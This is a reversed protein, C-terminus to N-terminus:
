HKVCDVLTKLEIVADGIPKDWNDKKSQRFLRMVEPYWPSDPRDLLWRWDTGFAPLLVWCPKGMAGAIHAVATDVCIVLDLQAMIAATDAFDRIDSGLNILPQEAPPQMAEAEGQGKQLSIFTVGPVSWLPALTALGPLSRNVDNKHGPSGKWVLGVRLGKQPLCDQWRGVREPLAHIYPLTAPITAVTTGFFLPLSLPFSWYDHPPIPSLDTIVADIGEMTELLAKLPQDCVFTLCSVGRDKLMPAYRAFQIYDGFGQEPYIVLSKGVLSQGQWQPYSLSPIRIINKTRSQNYRSEHYPWAEAYRGLILLLLSLNLKADAFDPKLELARLLCAEAEPFRKTEYHLYGLNNYVNASDPRQELARLYVAEAESQRKSGHLLYGLNNHTEAFDPRLELARRYAAEAEPLLKAEYLLNGLNYNTEASDPRLELARRYAAEAEPLLKAEYLLNGLNNHAEFDNPSLAVARQMTSLAEACQEMKNYVLSLVMWVFGNLPFREALQQALTTAEINRGEEYLTVLTNREQASPARGLYENIRVALVEVANGCLGLQRGQELVQQAAYIQDTQILVDIYSLWHAAQNPNAELAAKLHSIGTATKGLQMALMGLNHNAHPHKPYTQLIARYLHEADQLQGAQHHNIAQQLTQEVTLSVSQQTPSDTKM